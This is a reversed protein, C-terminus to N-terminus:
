RKAETKLAMKAPATPLTPQFPRIRIQHPTMSIPARAARIRKKCSRLDERQGESLEETRLLKRKTLFKEEQKGNGYFTSCYFLLLPQKEKVYIYASTGAGKCDGAMGRKFM